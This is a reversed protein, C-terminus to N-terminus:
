RTCYPTDSWWLQYERQGREPEDKCYQLLFAQWRTSGERMVTFKVKCIGYVHRYMYQQRYVDIHWRVPKAAM